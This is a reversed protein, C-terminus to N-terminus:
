HVEASYAAILVGTIPHREDRVIGASRWSPDLVNLGASAALDAETVTEDIHRSRLFYALGDAVSAADVDALERGSVDDIIRVHLIPLPAM